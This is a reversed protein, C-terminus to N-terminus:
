MCWNAVDLVVLGPRARTGMSTMMCIWSQQDMRLAVIGFKFDKTREKLPLKPWWRSRSEMLALLYPSFEEM